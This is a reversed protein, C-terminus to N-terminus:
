VTLLQWLQNPAPSDNTVEQITVASGETYANATLGWESSQTLDKNFWFANQSGWVPVFLYTSSTTGAQAGIVLNDKPDTMIVQNSQGHVNFWFGYQEDAFYVSVDWDPNAPPTTTVIPKNGSAVLYSGQDGWSRIIFSGIVISKSMAPGKRESIHVNGPALCTGSAVVVPGPDHLLTVGGGVMQM